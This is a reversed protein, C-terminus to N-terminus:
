VTVVNNELTGIDTISIRVVDGELLSFEPPPIIPTGTLFTTMDPITNSKTLWNKLSEFKRSLLSTSSDNKFILEGNRFISCQITLSNPNTISSVSVFSPGIACCKNYTKVQPLYLPNEGEISRSSMDNGITYGIIENRFLVLALEAEPVNWSSDQRIGIEDFPGVSREKTAKFFIEPRDSNYVKAYVDPTESERKRELESSKYTVGAAWIEPPDLPKLLKPKTTKNLTQEIIQDLSFKESRGTKLLDNSLEDIDKGSISAASILDEIRRIDSRLSTISELVGESTEVTIFPQNESGALRYYKM